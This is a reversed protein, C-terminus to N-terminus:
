ERITVGRGLAGGIGADVLVANGVNTIRVNELGIQGHLIGHAELAACGHALQRAIEAVVDPALRGRRVLLEKCSPGSVSRSLVILAGVQEILGHPSVVFSSELGRTKEICEGLAAAIRTSEDCAVRLRKLAITEGGPARARFTESDRGTGLRELL